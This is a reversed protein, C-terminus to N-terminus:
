GANRWEARRADDAALFAHVRNAFVEPQEQPLANGAAEITEISADPFLRAYAEVYEASAFGDSEGRLFLTPAALRHLRHRLKPNHMYPEWALLTLAERNRLVVRLREDSMTAPDILGKAPDHYFLRAVQEPSMAFIDPVDLRDAPGVKVGVPGAMVLRRIREPAMTGMEAAVWGGISCGVVDIEDVGLRDLLALHVHAVDAVSDLWDPLSSNGFGPHSPVILRRGRALLAVYADEPFFGAGDHLLLLPAGEGFEHCELEVGGVHLIDHRM